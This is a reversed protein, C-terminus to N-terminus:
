STGNSMFENNFPIFVSSTHYGGTGSDSFRTYIWGGPVRVLEYDGFNLREHLNITYIEDM